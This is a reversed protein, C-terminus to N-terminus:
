RTPWRASPAEVVLVVVEGGLGGGGVLVGVGLGDGGPGLVAQLELVQPAQVVVIGFPVLQQVLHGQVVHVGQDGQAAILGVGDAADALDAGVVVIAGSGNVVVEGAHAGHGADKVCMEFPKLYIERIAQENSWTCLMSNRNGEQDNLAFHKMYSYVTPETPKGAPTIIAAVQLLSMARAKPSLM